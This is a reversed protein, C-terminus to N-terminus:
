YTYPWNKFFLKTKQWIGNLGGSEFLLFLVISLGILFFKVEHFRESLIGFSQVFPETAFRLFEPMLTMFMAGFICGLISGMGGIIIMAVYEISVFMTFHEPTITGIYCAYLGGAVGAYFSSTAFAILKYKTLNIGIVNAAIDRDRVAILARGTRSRVINKGCIVAVFTFAMILFYFNRDKDFVINFLKAPLVTMGDPGGTVQVWHNFIYEMIIEFAMTSMILYLGKLRLSPFGLLIGGVASISGAAGIAILFPVGISILLATTYAGIGLFAAHALSIQGTYGTLINMGIAGITAICSLNVLYLIYDGAVFPALSLILFFIGMWAISWVTRYIRIEQRYSTNFYGSSM